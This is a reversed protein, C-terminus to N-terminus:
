KRVAGPGVRLFTGRITGDGAEFWAVFNLDRYPTVAIVRGWAKPVEVPDKSPAPPLWDTVQARGTWGVLLAVVVGVAMVFVQVPKVGGLRM